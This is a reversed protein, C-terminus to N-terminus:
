SDTDTLEDQLALRILEDTAMEDIDGADKSAAGGGAGGAAEGATEDATAALRLLTDALGARRLRELPITTLARRLASDTAGSDARLGTALRSHLHEALAAPTPHDFVLTAPLTLGTTTTLRNRLEVTMLSDFGLERFPRAPDILSGHHDAITAIQTTVLRLLHERQEPVPLGDLAPLTPRAAPTGAPRGRLLRSLMMPVAQQGALGPLDLRVPVLHAQGTGTAADFLALADKTSLPVVGTRRLRHLDAQRLRGTLGSSQEWLGWALATAPLGRARRHQALADLFTNAAAYNAQGAAGLVGSASSFLVFATLDLHRTQEHLHWAADVKPRLVDGVQDGTLDGVLADDVAGATHIVATLPHGAPVGALLTAVQGPDATDCAAITVASGLGTLERELEAAGDAGPGRRSVLLLNRSGHATVLHRAVLAGLTGTGGTVLVTGAPRLALGHEQGTISPVRALGPAYAKGQRVAVQARRDRVATAIIGALARESSSEDDVDVLTFRGPHEAQASRLLGWCAAQALGDVPDAPLAAVASRTLVVVHASNPKAPLWTQLFGLIDRTASHAAQVPDGADGPGPSVLVIEPSSGNGRIATVDPYTTRVAPVGAHHGVAAWDDTPATADAEFRTWEVEYLSEHRPATLARRLQEGSVPLILVSAVSGVSRGSEDAISVAIRGDESTTLWVRLVREGGTDMRVDRWSFPIRPREGDEEPDAVLATLGAPIGDAGLAHMTADLLAPHVAFGGSPTSEALRLEAFLDDGRRWAARLSRFAPGWTYHGRANYRDYFGAVDLAEADQPPWSVLADPAPRAQSSPALGGHALVVWLQDSGAARCRLNMTRDGDRGPAGLLLQLEFARNDALVLPSEHTLETILEAEVQHGAWAALEVWTTGPVVVNGLVLHDSIWPQSLRSIRGTFLVGGNDLDIRSTLLAHGAAGAPTVEPTAPELWFRRREFPYTPLSLRVPRHGPRWNVAHGSTYAKALAATVTTPEPVGKRLLTITDPADEPLNQQVLASLVPDPGLEVFTTVGLDHLTRVGDHFRVAQRAHRVWYDPSSMEEGDALRGTLNAVLPVVPRGFALGAVVRGFDAMMPDILPSHFAHSVTLRKTKRGEGDWHAAVRQAAVAAGSIVVSDAANVAAISVGEVGALSARVEDETAQLAIMAGGPPLAQMLRGRAAVLAAADSLSLVGSLHAAAIEGVSHGILYDARVGHRELLRYLAVQLAFLAPQAYATENLPNQEAAGVETFLVQQIPRDLHPDLHASVSDLAAAFVANAAYLEGGMAARQSGQGTFLFATRGSIRGTGLHAQPCPEGRGLRDLGDLLGTEDRGTVVARHEFAHRTTALAQGVDAPPVGPRERIWSALRRAQARLAAETRASLPWQVEGGGPPGAPVPLDPEATQEKSPEPEATQELSPEPEAAQELIVHANTGSIGFASVAARRPRGRDPWAIEDTLLEVKGASWNVHPTPSGVHLTKPLRGNRLALVMKIVGAVGAAAQTHGINSKVSGLWLPHDRNQGYTALLAQAEIPDGLTTGTGHAEVADVDSTRLGANALSQRIVRDQAPGNPATLGNSAGDQNVASGRVVALVEHGNRRAESLRELVLLGAGEGWGTGDAEAAFPKCRGDPALGRQRSFELFAGPNAMVTVGGALALTCESSRLAQAALHVAVLSSSCATDVTVAPGQFGFTYAIRGSTVSAANGTALYGGTEDRPQALGGGYEQPWAGVFVGTLSERLSAPTIGAAEVAEWAVELLVRQQPDMALAERPSIGFFAPDFDAADYLFGGTRAYTTGPHDPDPHYLADTDWGRDAPFGSIADTGDSVLRWLDDPSAVGGPYRCAMGVVAIPDDAPAGIVALPDNRDIEGSLEGYLFDAVAFPTPHDFTLTTPLDLGTVGILRNRIEVAMLSDFGHARFPQDLNVGDAPQRGLVATTQSGVLRRLYARRETVPLAELRRSLTSTTDEDQRRVQEAEPIEDLLPRPRAATFAPAFRAWDVDAVTLSTEDHDLADRLATLASEPRMKAVGFKSLHEGVGDEDGMGAGAWLGWSVALAPLGRGRRHVALADAFANAAGYVGQGASGWVGAISSFLVFADLERGAFLDHLHAAAVAKATVDALEAATTGAIASRQSVGAAHVVTRIPGLTAEVQDILGALAARDAVDCEAVTVTAGLETLETVLEQAGPARLGRRSTLVLNEAGAEALWKAAHVGLAGTGGTILATGRARWGDGASRRSLPARTLRPVFVGSARVAMQDEGSSGGLVAALRTLASRDPSEPLDVLGGWREPHELGVTRGLGWIQAQVPNDLADFRGVSVAGTTLLWLPADIRRDGLAQVLALTAALGQNEDLALLSVIGDVSGADALRGALTGRDDGTGVTIVDAETLLGTMAVVWAHEAQGAPVVLLRRGAPHGSGETLPRWAVKYRWGDTLSQDRHRQHWAALSPLVTSLSDIEHPAARLTSALSDVDGQAVADWFM